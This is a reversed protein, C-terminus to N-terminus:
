QLVMLGNCKHEIPDLLYVVNDVQKYPYGLGSRVEARYSFSGAADV